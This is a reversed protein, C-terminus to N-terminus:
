PLPAVQVPTTEDTMSGNGLQGSDGQGWCFGTGDARIGCSHLEGVSMSTLTRGGSVLVPTLQDVVTNVGVTRAFGWCYALGVNTLGCTHVVGTGMSTFALATSVPVPASEAAIEGTGVPDNEDPIAGTGLQGDEGRGWCFGSGDTTVGCTHFGGASISAFTLGGSVAVPAAHKTHAGNGLQGVEGRGWCYAAGDITVGCTHAAGTSISTFTLGGSVAKPTAQDELAGNGLRGDIGFGWCYAAGDTRLGCAHAGGSSISAFEGIAVPSLQDSSSGDGLQGSGGLGWCYAVGESTLACTHLGGPSISAFTLGGSVAVPTPQDDFSANGLQGTNGRGWCFAAGEPTLGCTHFGGAGISELRKRVAVTATGVVGDSTATIEADGFDLGTVLGSPSVSAISPDSSNWSVSRNMPGGGSALVTAILQVTSDPDLMTNAPDVTVTAVQSPAVTPSGCGGLWGLATAGLLWIIGPARRHVERVSRKTTM